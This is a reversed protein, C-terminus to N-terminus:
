INNKQIKQLFIHMVQTVISVFEHGYYYRTNPKSMMREHHDMYTQLIDFCKIYTYHEVHADNELEYNPVRMVICAPERICAIITNDMGRELIFYDFDDDGYVNKYILIM